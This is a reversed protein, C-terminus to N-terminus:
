NRRVQMNPVRFVASLVMARISMAIRLRDCENLNPWIKFCYFILSDIEGNIEKLVRYVGERFEAVLVRKTENRAHTSGPGADRNRM